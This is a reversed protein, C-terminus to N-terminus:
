GGLAVCVGDVFVGPIEIGLAGLLVCEEGEGAPGDTPSPTPGPPATSPSPSVSPESETTATPVAETAPPSAADSGSADPTAASTPEGSTTAPAPEATPSPATGGQGGDSNPDTAIATSGPVGADSDTCDTCPMPGLDDTNDPDDLCDCDIVQALAELREVVRQLLEKSEEARDQAATPMRGTLGDLGEFQGIGWEGVFRLTEVNVEEVATTTLAHTGEITQQDMIEMTEILLQADPAPAALAVSGAAVWGARGSGASGSTTVADAVPAGLLEGLEDLRTTAFGLLETGEERPDDALALQAQEAGRKLAYLTQGPVSNQALLTLIGAGAVVLSLALVAAIAPRGPIAHRGRRAPGLRGRIAAWLVPWGGQLSRPWRGVTTAAPAPADAVTRVAAMAVLRQRQRARIAEGAALDFDLRQLASVVSLLDASPSDAEAPPRQGDVLEAFRVADPRLM